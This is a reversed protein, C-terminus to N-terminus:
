TFTSTAGGTAMVVVNAPWTWAIGVCAAAAPTERGAEGLRVTAAVAMERGAEGPLVM